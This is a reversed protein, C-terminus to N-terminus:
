PRGPSYLWARPQPTLPQESGKPLRQREQARWFRRTERLSSVLHEVNLSKHRFQLHMEHDHLWAEHTLLWGCHRCLPCRVCTLLFLYGEDRGGTAWTLSAHLYPTRLQKAREQGSLATSHDDSDWCARQGGATRLRPLQPM